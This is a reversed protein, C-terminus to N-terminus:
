GPRPPPAGRGSGPPTGARRRGPRRRRGDRAPPRAAPRRGCCSRPLAPPWGARPRTARRRVRVLAPPAPSRGDHLRRLGTKPTIELRAPAVEARYWGSGLRGARTSTAAAAPRAPRGTRRARLRQQEGRAREDDVGPGAHRRGAVQLRHVDREPATLRERRGARRRPRPATAAPARAPAPPPVRAPQSAQAPVLDRPQRGRLRRAAARRRGGDLQRRRVDGAVRHVPWSLAPAQTAIRAAPRPRWDSAANPGAGSGGPPRGVPSARGGRSSVMRVRGVGWIAVKQGARLRQRAPM